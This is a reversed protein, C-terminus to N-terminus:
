IDKAMGPWYVLDRARRICSNIGMHGAHIREKVDRRLAVPIVIRDGRLVLGDQVTLEDRYSHYTKM